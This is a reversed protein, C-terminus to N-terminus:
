CFTISILFSLGLFNELMVPASYKRRKIINSLNTHSVLWLQFEFASSIVKEVTRYTMHGTTNYSSIKLSFWWYIVVSIEAQDECSMRHRWFAESKTCMYPNINLTKATQGKQSKFSGSFANTTHFSYRWM